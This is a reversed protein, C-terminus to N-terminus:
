ESRLLEGASTRSAWRAPVLTAVVAVLVLLLLGVATGLVVFDGRVEGVVLEPLARTEGRAQRTTEPREPRRLFATVEERATHLTAGPRLRGVVDVLALSSDAPAYTTAPVIPMWMETAAPYDLGQPAVGVITHTVGSSHMTVRRGLV